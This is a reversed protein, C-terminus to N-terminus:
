KWAPARNHPGGTESGSGDDSKLLVIVRAAADAGDLFTEDAGEGLGVEDCVLSVGFCRDAQYQLVVTQARHQLDVWWIGDTMAPAQVEIKAVPLERRVLNLLPDLEETM